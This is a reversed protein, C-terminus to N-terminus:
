MPSTISGIFGETYDRWQRLDKIDGKSWCNGFWYRLPEGSRVAAICVTHTKGGSEVLRAERASPMIVALGLMGDEAEISQDSAPEWISVYSRDDSYLTTGNEQDHVWLGAAIDLEEFDGYYRDEVLCFREGARVTVTKELRVNVGGADWEPYKLVFTVEDDSQSLVASERWNTAPYRLEGGVLPASAGGGLSVSVKYCDKGGHDHHYYEPDSVAHAYWEDAVLAGPLKVWVDIGPSTPDGELAKGYFRGAILDNEFVFDDMREPVERAMVKPGEAEKKGDRCGVVMFLVTTLVILWNKM